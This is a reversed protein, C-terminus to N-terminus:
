AIYDTVSIDGWDITVEASYAHEEGDPGEECFEPALGNECM